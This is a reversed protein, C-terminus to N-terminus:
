KTRFVGVSVISRVVSLEYGNGAGIPGIKNEHLKPCFVGFLQRDGSRKFIRSRDSPLVTFLSANWYAAHRRSTSQTDCILIWIRTPSPRGEPPPTGEQPHTQRRPSPTQGRLLPDAKWPAPPPTQRGMANDSHLGWRHVSHCFGTFVNGEGFCHITPFSSVDIDSQMIRIVGSHVGSLLM